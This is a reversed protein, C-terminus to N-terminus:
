SDAVSQRRQENEDMPMPIGYKSFMNVATDDGHYCLCLEQGKGVAKTTRAMVAGSDDFLLELNHAASGRAAHNAMEILPMLMMTGGVRLARSYVNGLAWRLAQQSFIRKPFFPAMAGRRLETDIFMEIADAQKVLTADARAVEGVRSHTGGEPPSLALDLNRLATVPSLLTAFGPLSEVWGSMATSCLNGGADGTATSRQEDENPKSNVAAAREAILFIAVCTTVPVNKQELISGVDNYSKTWEIARQHSVTLHRGLVIAVHGVPLDERAVIGVGNRATSQLQAGRFSAQPGEPELALRNIWSLTAAIRDEDSAELGELRPPVDGLVPELEDPEPEPPEADCPLVAEDGDCEAAAESLLGFFDDEDDSSAAAAAAAAAM